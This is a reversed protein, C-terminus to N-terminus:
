RVGFSQWRVSVENNQKLHSWGRVVRQRLQEMAYAQRVSGNAHQTYSPLM